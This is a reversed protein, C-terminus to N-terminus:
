SMPKSAGYTIIPIPALKAHENKVGNAELEDAKLGQQNNNPHPGVRHKSPQKTKKCNMLMSRWMNNNPRSGM